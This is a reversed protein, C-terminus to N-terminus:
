EKSEVFARLTALEIRLGANRLLSVPDRFRKAVPNVSQAEYVRWLEYHDGERFAKEFERRPWEFRGDSGTTSKVEIWLAQGDEAVSKIDHDAGPTDKSTWVVFEEPVSYGLSRLREIELKYVLHEGRNGVMRDREVDAPTPPTWSPSYGGGGWRGGSQQPVPLEAGTPNEVRVLVEDLPPLVLTPRPVAEQVPGQVPSPAAPTVNTPQTTINLADILQRVIQATAEDTEDAREAVGKLNDNAEGAELQTNSWHAPRIGQGSLYHLMDSSSRCNLLPFIANAMARNDSLRVAGVAEALVHAVTQIYEFKSGSRKLSIRDQAFAWQAAVSVSVGGVEYDRTIENTFTIHQIARLRNEIEAVRMPGFRDALRLRMWALERLAVAFHRMHILSLIDTEHNERFWAPALGSEGMRVIPVGCVDSLRQLKLSTFFAGADESIDAFAVQSGLRELGQALEPYDDELLTGNRLDEFSHLSGDRALLCRKQHDLEDPLGSLGRRLYALHLTKRENATLSQGNAARDAFWEFFAVWHHEQPARAAGLEEFARELIQQGRLVPIAIELWKPVSVGVLTQGPTRYSGAVWLIPEDSYAATSVKESKAAAVLAPYVIEPRRPAVGARRLRELMDILVKSSPNQRCGLVRYLSTNPGGVILGQDDLSAENIANDIHLHEPTDLTGARSRLFKVSRLEAAVKPTILRQYKKLLDECAQAKDPASSVHSALAMLDKSAVKTRIGLRGLLDPRKLLDRAPTDVVERLLNALERPLIALSQPSTWEGNGNKVVPSVRLAAISARNLREQSKLLHDYLAERERKEIAGSAARGAAAVIWDDINFPRCLGAISRKSVLEPHLRSSLPEPCVDWIDAAVTILSSAPRLRGDAALTSPSERLDKRNLNSLQKSSRFLAEAMSVQQEVMTLSHEYEKFHYDAEGDALRTALASRDQGACRLRVLSNISFNKAGSRRALDRLLASEALETRLYRSPDLFGHLWSEAPVVIDSAKANKGANMSPWCVYQKLNNEVKHIFWTRDAGSNQRLALFGDAGFRDAWDNAALDTVLDSAAEALWRNWDSDILQSRDSDLKFPASVNVCTGTSGKPARLPYHFHGPASLNIHRRTLTLSVGVTIAGAKAKYYAPYSVEEYSGPVPLPRSFEIEEFSTSHPDARREPDRDVLRGARRTAAVTKIACPISKATQAWDLSRRTRASTIKVRRIGQRRGTTALKALTSFLADAIQDLAQSEKTTDFIPLSQFPELRYPVHITVGDRGASDADAQQLTGMALLDMVAMRGNSRVYIRNGFLFLSRLGFNKSGIGNEKPTVKEGKSDGVVSGTGIIVSLRSWGRSDISRGSGTITLDSLGFSISMTNGGADFENQVLERLVDIADHGAVFEEVVSTGIRQRFEVENISPPLWPGIAVHERNGLGKKAPSARRKRTSVSREGDMSGALAYIASLQNSYVLQGLINCLVIPLTTAQISVLPASMLSRLIM